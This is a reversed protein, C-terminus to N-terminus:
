AATREFDVADGTSYESLTPRCPSGVEALTGAPGALCHVDGTEVPPRRGPEIRVHEPQLVPLLAPPCALM